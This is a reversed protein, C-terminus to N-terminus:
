GSTDGAKELEAHVTYTGKSDRETNVIVQDIAHAGRLDVIAVSNRRKDLVKDVRVVRSTGDKYYVRVTRVIPRGTAAAIRLRTFSNDGEVTIFERGHSAPTPSALEIWGDQAGADDPAPPNLDTYSVRATSERPAPAAAVLSSSGAVLVALLAPTKM